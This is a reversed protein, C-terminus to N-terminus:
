YQPLSIKFCKIMKRVSIQLLITGAICILKSPKFFALDVALLEREKRELTNIAGIEATSFTKICFKVREFILSKYQLSCNYVKQRCVLYDKIKSATIPTNIFSNGVKRYYYLGEKIMIVKKAKQAVLAMFYMDEYRLEDPFRIDEILKRSFIKNWISFGLKELLLSKYIKKGSTLTKNRKSIINGNDNYFFNVPYQVVEAGPNKEIATMCAAYTQNDIWDDGDVFTIYEGTAHQLGLNRAHSVGKNESNIVIIGNNEFAQLKQLTGDTSGDNIAIIELNKYSQNLLSGICEQIYAEVNYCPIIVSLKQM